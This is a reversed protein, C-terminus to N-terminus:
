KAVANVTGAKQNTFYVATDDVAIGWYGADGEVFTTVPGGAVGGWVIRSYASM